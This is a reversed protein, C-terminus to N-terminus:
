GAAILNVDDYFTVFVCSVCFCLGDVFHTLRKALDSNVAQNAHLVCLLKDSVTKNLQACCLVAYNMEWLTIGIKTFSIPDPVSRSPTNRRQFTM